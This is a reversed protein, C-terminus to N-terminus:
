NLFKFTSLMLDLNKQEERTLTDSWAFQILRNKYWAVIFVQWNGNLQGQVVQATGGGLSRLDVTPPVRWGLLNRTTSIAESALLTANPVNLTSEIVLTHYKTDDPNKSVRASGKQEQNRKQVGSSTATWDPPYELSFRQLNDQFTKWDKTPDEEVLEFSVLVQSFQAAYDNNILAAVFNLDENEFVVYTETKDDPSKVTKKTGDMSDVKMYEETVEVGADFTLDIPQDSYELYIVGLKSSDCFEDLNVEESSPLFHIRQSCEILVIDEPYQFSFDANASMYNKLKVIPKPTPIPTAPELSPLPTPSPELPVKILRKQTIYGAVIITTVLLIAPIIFLLNRFKTRPPLQRPEQPVPQTPVPATQINAVLPTQEQVEVTTIKPRAPDM